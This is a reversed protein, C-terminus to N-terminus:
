HHIEVNLISQIPIYKGGKLMLWDNNKSLIVSQVQKYGEETNFTVNAKTHSAQGNMIATFIKQILSTKQLINFVPFVREFHITNLEESIIFQPEISSSNKM